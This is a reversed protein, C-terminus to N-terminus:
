FMSCVSEFICAKVRNIFAKESESQLQWVIKKPEHRTTTNLTYVVEVSPNGGYPNPTCTCELNFKSRCFLNDDFQGLLINLSLNTEILSIELSDFNSDTNNIFKLM